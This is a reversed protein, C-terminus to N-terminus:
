LSFFLVFVDAKNLYPFPNDTRDKIQVIKGLNKEDIFNKLDSLQDGEGIILLKIKLKDKLHNISKLITIHDKQKM